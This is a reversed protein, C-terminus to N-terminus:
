LARWKHQDAGNCSLGRDTLKEVFGQKLLQSLRPRVNFPTEDLAVAIDDATCVHGRKLYGLVRLRISLEKGGADMAQAAEMSAGTTKFGASNPYAPQWEFLDM